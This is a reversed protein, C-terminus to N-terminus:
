CCCLSTYLLCSGNGAIFQLHNAMEAQMKENKNAIYATNNNNDTKIFTKAIFKDPAVDFFRRMPEM